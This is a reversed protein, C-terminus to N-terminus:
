GFRDSARWSWSGFNSLFWVGFWLLSHNNLSWTITTPPTFFPRGTAPWALLARAREPGCLGGGLPEGVALAICPLSCQLTFMQQEARSGVTFQSHFRPALRGRGAVWRQTGGRCRAGM